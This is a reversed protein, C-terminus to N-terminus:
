KQKKENNVHVILSYIDWAYDIWKNRNVKKIFYDVDRQDWVKEKNESFSIIWDLIRGIQNGTM